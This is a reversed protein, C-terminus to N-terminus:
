KIKSCDRLADHAAIFALFKSTNAAQQATQPDTGTLSLLQTWLQRDQVRFDNGAHCSTVAATHAAAAGTTARRVQNIVQDLGYGFGIAAVSLCIDLIVTGAMIKIIRKVWKLQSSTDKRLDKFDDSLVVMAGTMAQAVAVPDPPTPVTTDSM